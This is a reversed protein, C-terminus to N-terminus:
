RHKPLETTAGTGTAVLKVQTDIRYTPAGGGSVDFIIRSGVVGFPAKHHLRTEFSVKTHVPGEDYEIWGSTGKAEVRGMGPVTLAEAPLPREDALPGALFAPWRGHVPEAPEVDRDEQLTWGRIVHRTPDQGARLYRVPILLKRIWFKRVGGETADIRLEIWRCREGHEEIEGVSAMRMTQEGTARQEGATYVYSVDFRAWSGDAPLRYFLGERPAAVPTLPGVAMVVALPLARLRGAFPIPPASM